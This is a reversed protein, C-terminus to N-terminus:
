DSKRNTIEIVNAVVPNIYMQGHSNCRIRLTNEVPEVRIETGDALVFTNEDDHYQSTVYEANHRNTQKDTEIIRRAFAIEIASVTMDPAGVAGMITEAWAVLDDTEAHRCIFDQVSEKPNVAGKNGNLFATRQAAKEQDNWDSDPHFNNDQDEYGVTYLVHTPENETMKYFYKM